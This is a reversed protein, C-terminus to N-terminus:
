IGECFNVAYHEFSPPTFPDFAKQVINFFVASKKCPPKGLGPTKERRKAKDQAATKFLASNNESPWSIPFNFRSGPVVLIDVKGRLNWKRHLDSKSKCLFTTMQDSKNSIQLFFLVVKEAPLLILNFHYLGEQSPDVSCPFSAPPVEPITM